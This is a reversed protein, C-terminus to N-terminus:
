KDNNDLYINLREEIEVITKEEIEKIKDQHHKIKCKHYNVRRKADQRARLLKRIEPKRGQYNIERFVM